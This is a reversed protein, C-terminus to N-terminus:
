AKPKEQSELVARELEDLQKPTLLRAMAAAAPRIDVTAEVVTRIKWQELETAAQQGHARLESFLSVVGPVSMPM